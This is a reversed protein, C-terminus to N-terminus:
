KLLLLSRCRLLLSRYRLLLSRYRLLLSRCRLLLSRRISTPWVLTASRSLWKEWASGSRDDIAASGTSSSASAAVIFSTCRMARM